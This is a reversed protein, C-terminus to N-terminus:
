YACIYLALAVTHLKNNNYVSLVIYGHHHQNEITYSSTIIVMTVCWAISVMVVVNCM